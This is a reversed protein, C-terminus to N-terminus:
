SVVWSIVGRGAKAGILDGVMGRGAILAPVIQEIPAIAVIGPDSGPGMAAEGRGTAAPRQRALAMGFGPQAQNAAVAMPHDLVLRQARRVLGGFAHQHPM